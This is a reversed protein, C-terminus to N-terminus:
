VYSYCFTEKSRIPQVNRVYLYCTMYKICYIDDKFHTVVIRLHFEQVAKKTSTEPRLSSDEWVQNKTNYNKTKCDRLTQNLKERHDATRTQLRVILIMSFSTRQRANKCHRGWSKGLSWSNKDPTQSDSDYQLNNKTKCDRLAQKLKEGIILQEQRSDSQWFRVSSQEKDQLRAFDPETKALYDATRTQLRVTLIM